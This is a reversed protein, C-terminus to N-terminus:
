NYIEVELLNEDSSDKSYSETEQNHKVQTLYKLAGSVKYSRSFCQTRWFRIVSKTIGKFLFIIYRKVYKSSLQRQPLFELFQPQCNQVARELQVTSAMSSTVMLSILIYLMGSMHRPFRRSSFIIIIFLTPCRITKKEIRSDEKFVVYNQLLFALLIM